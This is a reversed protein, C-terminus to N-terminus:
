IAVEQAGNGARGVHSSSVGSDTSKVFKLYDDDAYEAWHAILRTFEVRAPQGDAAISNRCAVISNLLILLVLSRHM